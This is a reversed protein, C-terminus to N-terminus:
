GEAVLNIREIGEGRGGSIFWRPLEWSLGLLTWAEGLSSLHASHTRKWLPLEVCKAVKAMTGLSEASLAAYGSWSRGARGRARSSLAAFCGPRVILM